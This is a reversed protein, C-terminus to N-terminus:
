LLAQQDEELEFGQVLEALETKNSFRLPELNSIEYEVVVKHKYLDQDIKESKITVKARKNLKFTRSSKEGELMAM